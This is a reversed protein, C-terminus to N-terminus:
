NNLGNIIDTLIRKAQSFRYDLRRFGLWENEKVDQVDNKNLRAKFRKNWIEQDYVLKEMKEDDFRKLHVCNIWESIFIQTHKKAQLAYSFIAKENLNNPDILSNNINSNWRHWEGDFCNNQFFKQQILKNYLIHTGYMVESFDHALALIAKLSDSVPFDHCERAFEEFSKSKNFLTFLNDNKILVSILRNGANEIIRSKFFDAEDHTLELRIESLNEYWKNDPKVRLNFVNEFEADRDDGPTDDGEISEALLSELSHRSKSLLFPTISLDTNIFKYFTMGNWYIASPKRMLTQPRKKLIGIVGEGIQGNYLDILHWMTENEQREMYKQVSLGKRKAPSLRCYDWLIYPTLFFYKARTQITSIGPFMENAFADRVVGVGLEDVMGDLKLLDLVTAVRDKHTKSFDIWGLQAM